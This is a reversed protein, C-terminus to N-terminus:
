TGAGAGINVRPFSPPLFSPRGEGLADTVVEPSPKPSLIQLLSTDKEKYIPAKTQAVYLDQKKGRERKLPNSLSYSESM